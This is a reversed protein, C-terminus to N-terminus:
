ANLREGQPDYFKPEVVNVPYWQGQAYVNLTEGMRARGRKLMAMAVPRNLSPSWYTSTVHGESDAPLTKVAASLLHGGVPLVNGALSELGILQFRDQRMPEARGLSRKGVFDGVNKRAMDGFGIDDPVTAGDTDSGVHLYGKETRMVMLSELGVPTVGLDRGLEMFLEWLAATFGAPVAIEYSVEGTFSVRHIRTPVGSITGVRVTMHPFADPSLDIDAGARSLLERAKPGTLLIVGWATTVNTIYVKLHLWECQLWEEFALAIRSAAGSTTGVLYLNDDLRSIVGDDIIIGQENLMINYRARGTKLTALNTVTMRNLFDLADPGSVEIKGLPSYDLMGVGTRVAMVERAIAAPEDEGARPYCAPRLWPGYDELAAGAAQQLEHTPLTRAIHFLPGRHVGAIAGFSVPTYPPRFTTTGTEGISRGTLGALLALGNVNSTKGQDPAMGLTTYRKVHEVSAYNERAALGVDETTVDNHFDIWQKARGSIAAPTRWHADGTPSPSFKKTVPLPHLIEGLDFVGAAAGVSIEHQRSQNPVFCSKAEDYRLKGGSQSFLHVTPNVGGSMAVSDCALRQAGGGKLSAIEVGSVRARGFTQRVVHGAFIKIGAAAAQDALAGATARSDIIGIIETGAAQLDFAAVYASDNNTVIAIRKGVLVAYRNLYQRAASALMIGPRDNGPFVMPREIAGTALIVRKARVHWLRQRPLNPASGPPLHDTVRELATLYNHDLYGTVTTRPLLTADALRSLEDVTDAAWKHGPKGDIEVKDWLLSGGFTAGEDALIVRAGSRAATRAAALGAPGAGVVLVDGHLHQHEYRDPDAVCPSVGIGAAARVVGEFWEWRPWMFTKYYFGGPLFRHFLGTLAGIDFGLTPWCNLSKAQLGQYLEIATARSNTDRRPDNGVDVIANPEEAGAGFIGRPRHYKFSRAVFHVGNALLASALTDGAFGGYTKGNFIFTLPKARDIMGGSTLRFPQDTM